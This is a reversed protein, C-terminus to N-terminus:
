IRKGFLSVGVAKGIRVMITEGIAAEGEKIIVIKNTKTRGRKESPNKKSIDDILVEQITRVLARNRQLTHKKQKHIVQNLRESKENATVSDGQKAAQTGPRSSYIFTFATDFVVQDMVALTEQFDARTEGPFGVIIDTSLAVDPLYSRIRDVLALYQDQTYNRNMLNLIRTSGSQLPLHIHNCINDYKQMVQLLGDNVDQPHPSTYRIRQVGSIQAIAELLEPFGCEAFHYSNVNQGLLTIEQYGAKIAAKVERLIAATSRSRERGRTFPVICFSCFKDCGRMISIWANVQSQRVPQLEDYLESRSLKVDVFPAEQADLAEPLHRYADPGLMLDIFPKTELLQGRDRQAVCGILGLKLNPNKKKLNKFQNIRAIARRDANERVACTNVLIIDALTPDPTIQYNQNAMIGAILESDYENMQCGYTEIYFKRAEM